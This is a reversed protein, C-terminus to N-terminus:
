LPGHGREGTCRAGRPTRWTLVTRAPSQWALHHSLFGRPHAFAASTDNPRNDFVHKVEICPLLRHTSTSPRFWDIPKLVFVVGVSAYNPRIGNPVSGRRTAFPKGTPM